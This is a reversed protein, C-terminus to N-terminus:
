GITSILSYKSFTHLAVIDNHRTPQHTTTQKNRTSQHHFKCVRLYHIICDTSRESIHFTRSYVDHIAILRCPFYVLASIFRPETSLNIQGSAQSRFHPRTAETLKVLDIWLDPRM